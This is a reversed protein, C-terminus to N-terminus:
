KWEIGLGDLIKRVANVAVAFKEPSTGGGFRGAVDLHPEMSIFIDRDRLRDFVQPICSVGEGPVSMDLAHGSYDKVHVYSIYKHMVKEADLANEGAISYNAPDFVLGFHDSKLAAAIEASQASLQGYIESENEHLLTVGERSAFETMKGLRFLVEDRHELINGNRCYFSFIRVRGCGFFNALRVARELRKMELSLPDEIFTKGIPSGICSVKIGCGKITKGILSVQEDTLEMVNSGWASRLEFWSLKMQRWIEMQADFDPGLEDAFGTLTFM